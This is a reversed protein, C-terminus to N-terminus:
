FGGLTGCSEVDVIAQQARAPMGSAEFRLDQALPGMTLVFDGYSEDILDHSTALSLNSQTAELLLAFDSLFATLAQQFRDTGVPPTLAELQELMGTATEILVSNNRIERAIRDDVTLSRGTVGDAIAESAADFRLTTSCIESAWAALDEVTATATPTATPTPTATATATAAPTSTATPTPTPTDVATAAPSAVSSSSTAGAGAEADDDGGCAAVLALSLSLLVVIWRGRM